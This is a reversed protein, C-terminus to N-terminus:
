GNSLRLQRPTAFWLLVGTSNATLLPVEIAAIGGKKFRLELADTSRTLLYSVLQSVGPEHGVLMLRPKDRHGYLAKVIDGATHGPALADLIEYSGSDVLAGALIAATQEARKFPSTLIVDPVVRLRGLSSAIIRMNRKGASTLGRQADRGANSRAAAIGHRVVFITHNM